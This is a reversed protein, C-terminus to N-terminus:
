AGRRLLPNIYGLQRRAKVLPLIAKGGPAAVDHIAAMVSGRANRNMPYQPHNTGISDLQHWACPRLRSWHVPTRVVLRRNIAIGRGTTVLCLIGGPCLNMGQEAGTANLLLSNSGFWLLM